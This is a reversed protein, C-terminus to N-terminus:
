DAGPSSTGSRTRRTWRLAARLRRLDDADGSDSLLTLAHARGDHVSRYRLVVLLPTVFSDGLVEIDSWAGPADRCQLAADAGLRLRVGKAGDRLGRAVFALVGVALGSQVGLPLAALAIAVLALGAMLLQLVGLRRSPKLDIERM